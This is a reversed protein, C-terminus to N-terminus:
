SFGLLPVPDIVCMACKKLADRVNLWIKESAAVAEDSQPCVGIVIIDAGTGILGISWQIGAHGQDLTPFLEPPSRDLKM